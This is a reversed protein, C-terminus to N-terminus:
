ILLIEILKKIYNYIHIEDFIDNFFVNIFIIYYSMLFNNKM